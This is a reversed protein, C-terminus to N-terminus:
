QHILVGDAALKEQLRDLPVQQFPIKENIALAAATGAAQGTTIAGPYCRMLDWCDDQASINRGVAAGNAIAPSLMCGYPIEHIPGSKRWDSVCGVSNDTRKFVNSPDMEELGVIRRTMRLQPMTPMSLIAYDPGREKLYRLLAEHSLYLYQNIDEGTLGELGGDRIAKRNIPDWGIIRWNVARAMDRHELAGALREFDTDCCEVTFRNRFTRTEAGARHYVLSYGSADIVARCGIVWRGSLDEVIVGTCIDGEMVVDCFLTDYLLTIGEQRVREELALAFAPINFLTAYRGPRDLHHEMDPHVAVEEPREVRSVERSWCTPLTNYSYAISLHLLEETIGGSIKRGYGDCLPEFFCVHGATALGGLIAQKEVLVVDMGHRAAALAAAVGGPGGGVVVVDARRKVKLIRNERIQEV